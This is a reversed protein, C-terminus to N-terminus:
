MTCDYRSRMYVKTQPDVNQLNPRTSSLRGTIAVCQNIVGHLMDPEWNMKKILKTYGELYTGRLKELRSYTNLLKVVHKARKNLKLKRLVTDNVQWYQNEETSKKTESGKVPTVLRPLKYVKEIKKYRTEGVKGGTKYVGVPIRIIEVISGGYLLASVHDNSNPNIPVHGAYDNLQETILIVEDAIRTSHEMAQETDFYIGNWEMEELTLLDACQLKFLNYRKDTDFIRKQHEFVQQTVIVDQKAYDTLIERPIDPTDIDKDWYELKVVDLKPPLGYKEATQGLSPYREQQSSLIFEGIQCDWVRVKSVDLGAKRLWHLDFKINFGIIISASDIYTQVPKFSGDSDPYICVPDEDLWKMAVCVLKNTRDFPNGKNSTTCEIDLTLVNISM